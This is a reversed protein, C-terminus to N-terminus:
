ITRLYDLHMGYDYFRKLAAMGVTIDRELNDLFRNSRIQAVSFTQKPLLSNPLTQKGFQQAKIADFVLKAVNIFLEIKFDPESLPLVYEATGLHFFKQFLHELLSIIKAREFNVASITLFKKFFLFLRIFVSYM